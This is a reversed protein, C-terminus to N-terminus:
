KDVLSLRRGGSTQRNDEGGTHTLMLALSGSACPGVSVSVCLFLAQGSHIYIFYLTMRLNNISQGQPETLEGFTLLEYSAECKQKEFINDTYMQAASISSCGKSEFLKKKFNNNM